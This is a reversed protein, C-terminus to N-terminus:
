IVVDFVFEEDWGLVVLSVSTLTYNLTLDLDKLDPETWDYGAASIYEHLPFTKVKGSTDSVDMYLPDGIQRPLVIEIQKGTLPELTRSVQFDGPMPYGSRDFGAVSGRLTLSEMEEEKMFRIRLVCHNKRLTMTDRVLEGQALVRSRHIYVRPCDYGLPVVLGQESIYDGCGSWAVVDLESRPVEVEYVDSIEDPILISEHIFEGESMVYLSM